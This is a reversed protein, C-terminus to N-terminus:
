RDRETGAKAPQAARYVSAIDLYAGAIRNVTEREDIEGRVLASFPGDVPDTGGRLGRFEGSAAAVQVWQVVSDRDQGRGLVLCGLDAATAGASAVAM